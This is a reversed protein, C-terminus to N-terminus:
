SILCGQMSIPQPPPRCIDSWSVYFVHHHHPTWAPFNITSFLIMCNRSFIPSLVCADFLSYWVLILFLISYLCWTDVSNVVPLRTDSIYNHLDFTAVSVVRCPYLNPHYTTPLYWVCFLSCFTITTPDPPTWAPFNITFLIVM